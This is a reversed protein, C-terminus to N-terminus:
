LRKLELSHKKLLSFSDCMVSFSYIKASHFVGGRAEFRIGGGGWVYVSVDERVWVRVDKSLWM